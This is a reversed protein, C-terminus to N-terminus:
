QLFQISDNKQFHVMIYNSTSDTITAKTSINYHNQISKQIKPIYCKWCKLLFLDTSDVLSKYSKFKHPVNCGYAMWGNYRMKSFDFSKTVFLPPLCEINLSGGMAVFSLEERKIFRNILSDQETYINQKWINEKFKWITNLILIYSLLLLLIGIITKQHWNLSKSEIHEFLSVILVLVMSIMVRYKISLGEVSIYCFVFYFLLLQLLLQWKHIPKKKFFILCIFLVTIIQFIRIYHYKYNFSYTKLNISINELKEKYSKFKVTNSLQTIVPITFINPDILFINLLSYDDSTIGKPFKTIDNQINDNISRVKELHKIDRWSKNNLYYRNDLHYFIFAVLITGIVISINKIYKREKNMLIRKLFFPSYLVFLVIALEFRILFGLLVFFAGIFNIRIKSHDFLLMGAITTLCATTTFQLNVVFHFAIIYVLGLFFFTLLTRNKNLIYKVIISLSLIHISIFLFTYWEFTPINKYLFSVFYGYIFNISCLHADPIGTYKGSAILLMIIDDNEEYHFHFVIAITTFFVTNLFALLVFNTTQKELIFRWFTVKSFIKIM